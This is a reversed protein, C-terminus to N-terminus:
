THEKLRELKMQAIESIRKWEDHLLKLLIKETVKPNCAVRMRVTEDPDTALKDLIEEGASRRTAVMHRVQSDIDNSLIELIKKPITKNHAVWKKMDPYKEIVEIWIEETAQENAARLYENRNQSLRLRVFEAATEIM